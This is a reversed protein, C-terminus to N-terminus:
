NVNTLKGKKQNNSDQQMNVSIKQNAQKGDSSHKYNPQLSQQNTPQVDVIQGHANNTVNATNRSAQQQSSQQTQAGNKNKSVDFNLDSTTLQQKDDFSLTPNPQIQFTHQYTPQIVGIHGNVNGSLHANGLNAQRYSYKPKLTHREM